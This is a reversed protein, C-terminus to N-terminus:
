AEYLVNIRAVYKPQPGFVKMGEHYVTETNPGHRFFLAAGKRPVVDVVAVGEGFLRTHGGQVGDELGNLYVTMSLKSKTGPIEVVSQNDPGIARGPWEGDFHRQFVDGEEYKFHFIGRSLGVLRKGDLSQPLSRHVREFLLNTFTGDDYWLLAQNMRSGPTTTIKPAAATYGLQETAALLLDAESPTLVGDVVFALKGGLDIDTRTEAPAVCESCPEAMFGSVAYVNVTEVRGGDPLSGPARELVWVREAALPRRSHLVPLLESDVPRSACSVPGDVVATM